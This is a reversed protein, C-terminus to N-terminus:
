WEPGTARHVATKSSTRWRATPRPSIGGVAPFVRRRWGRGGSLLHTVVAHEDPHTIDFLSLSPAEKSAYGLLELCQSSAHTFRGTADCEWVVEESVADRVAAHRGSDAGPRLFRGMAWAAAVVVILAAHPLGVVRGGVIGPDIAAYVGAVTAAGLAVGLAAGGTLHTGRV